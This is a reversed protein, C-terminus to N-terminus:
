PVVIRYFRRSYSGSRTDVYGFTGGTSTHALLKTWAVLNTSAELAYVAGTAPETISLQLGAPVIMPIGFEPPAGSYERHEVVTLMQNAAVNTLIQVIGSPWEIRVEDVNTADGLGFRAIVAPGSAWAGNSTIQRVQSTGQRRILARARIKAGIGLANSAKGGLKVKLWHNTNGTAPLNNRCLLNPSPPLTAALWSTTSSVTM